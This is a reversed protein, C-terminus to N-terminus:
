ATISVSPLVKVYEQFNQVNLEKLAQNGLSQISIPVDQLNEARKQATVVVEELQPGSQAMVMSSALLIAAAVPTKVFRKSDKTLSIQQM